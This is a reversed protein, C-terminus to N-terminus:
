FLRLVTEWDRYLSERLTPSLQGVNKFVLTAVPNNDNARIVKLRKIFELEAIDENESVVKKFDEPFYNIFYRRKEASSKIKDGVESNPNIVLESGFFKTKSMIYALLDNYVSNMTKVNLKGTKTM